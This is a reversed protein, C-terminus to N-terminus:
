KYAIVMDDLEEASSGAALANRVTDGYLAEMDVMDSYMGLANTLADQTIGFATVLQVLSYSFEDTYGNETLWAIYDDNSLLDATLIKIYGATDNTNNTDPFTNNPLMQTEATTEPEATSNDQKKQTDTGNATLYQEQTGTSYGPLVSEKEYIEESSDNLIGNVPPSTVAAEDEAASYDSIASYASYMAEATEETTEASISGSAAAEAHIDTMVAYDAANQEEASGENVNRIIPSAIILVGCLIMFCAAMGGWKMILAQKKRIKERLPVNKKEAATKEAASAAREAAIQAMVADKISHRPLPYIEKLSIAPEDPMDNTLNNPEMCMTSPNRETKQRVTLIDSYSLKYRQVFRCRFHIPFQSYYRVNITRERCRNCLRQLKSFTGM